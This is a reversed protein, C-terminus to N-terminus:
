LIMKQAIVLFLPMEQFKEAMLFNIIGGLGGFQSSTSDTNTSKSSSTSPTSGFINSWGSNGQPM